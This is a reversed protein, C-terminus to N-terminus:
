RASELHRDVGALRPYLDGQQDIKRSLVPREYCIAGMLSVYLFASALIVEPDM